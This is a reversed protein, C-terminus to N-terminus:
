KKKKKSKAAKKPAKKKSTGACVSCMGPKSTSETIGKPKVILNYRFGEISEGCGKCTRM